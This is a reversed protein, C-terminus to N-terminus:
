GSAPVTEEEFDETATGLVVDFITASVNASGGGGGFEAVRFQRLRIEATAGAPIVVGAVQFTAREIPGARADPDASYNWVVGFNTGSIVRVRVQEFFADPPGFFATLSSITRDAGTLNQFRFDFDDVGHAQRSNPVYVFGSGTTASAVDIRASLGKLRYSGGPWSVTVTVRKYPTSGDASPVAPDPTAATVNEVLVNESFGTLGPIVVNASDRPPAVSYADFDDVDDWNRRGAEEIGFSGPALAADEFHKGLIEEMLSAALAVARERSGADATAQAYQFFGILLGPIAVAAITVAIAAEISTFGGARAARRRRATVM